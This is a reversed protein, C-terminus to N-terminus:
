KNLLGFDKRVEKAFAALFGSFGRLPAIPPGTNSTKPPASTSYQATAQQAVKHLEDLHSELTETGIKKADQIHTHTKLAFRQFTRSNAM